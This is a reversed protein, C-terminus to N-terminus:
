LTVTDNSSKMLSINLNGNRCRLEDLMAKESVNEVLNVKYTLEYLAGMNTTKIRDLSYKNVYKKLIDDFVEEYNLDEPITIKLMKGKNGENLSPVFSLIILALCVIGVFAAGFTLYGMGCALGLAMSLFVYTIDKSEGPASRFRVLSFAGAISFARAVNSGVLVIIVSVIAPLVILSVVFGYSTGKKRSTFIYTFSIVM